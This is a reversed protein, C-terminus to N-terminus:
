SALEGAVPEAYPNFETMDEDWDLILKEWQDVISASFTETFKQHNDRHHDRKPVAKDLQSGLSSGTTKILVGAWLSYVLSVLILLKVGIGRILMTM